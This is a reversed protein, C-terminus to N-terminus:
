SLCHSESRVEDGLQDCGSEDQRHAETTDSWSVCSVHTLVDSTTTGADSGETLVVDDFCVDWDHATGFSKADGTVTTPCVLGFTVPGLCSSISKSLGVTFTASHVSM